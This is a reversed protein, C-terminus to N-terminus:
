GPTAYDIPESAPGLIDQYARVMITYRTSPSLGGLTYESVDGGEVKVPMQPTDRSSFYIVYGDADPSPSPLVWSIWISTTNKACVKKLKPAFNPAATAFM